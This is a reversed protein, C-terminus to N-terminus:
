SARVKPAADIAKESAAEDALRRDDEDAGREDRDVLQSLTGARANELIRASDEYERKLHATHEEWFTVSDVQAYAEQRLVVDREPLRKPHADLSEFVGRIFGRHAVVKAALVQIGEDTIWRPRDLHEAIVQAIRAAADHEPIM